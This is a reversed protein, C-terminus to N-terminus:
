QTKSKNLQTGIESLQQSEFHSKSSAVFYTPTQAKQQIEFLKPTEPELTYTYTLVRPYTTSFELVIM